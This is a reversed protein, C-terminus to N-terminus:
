HLVDVLPEMPNGLIDEYEIRVSIGTKQAQWSRLISRAEPPTHGQNVLHTLSERVLLLESQAPIARGALLPIFTEWTISLDFLDVLRNSRKDGKEFIALKIIAPGVGHNALRVSKLDEYVQSQVWLLPKVAARADREARKQQANFSVISFGLASLAIVASSVGSVAGWDM